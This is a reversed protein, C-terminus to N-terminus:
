GPNWHTHTRRQMHHPHRRGQDKFVKIGKETFVSVTGDDMTKGMSMLSTPFDQFIDAQILQASLKRFPLQAVYKEKSIGGNAVGVLQTSPQL